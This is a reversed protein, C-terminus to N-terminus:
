QLVDEVDVSSIDDIPLRSLCDCNAHDATNRYVITFQFQMLFTSWRQLRAAMFSPLSKSLSFISTLPKHDTVLLFKSGYLYQYFKKIGFIISAAERDIQSWNKEAQTLSRSAFHIPRETGDPLIHSLVAGLGVSSAECDLKLQWKPNYHILVDTSVLARKIAEFSDQHSKTWCFRADKCKLQNLPACLTSFNPVFKSYYNAMGLFTALQSLDKPVPMDVICDVKAPKVRIGEADLIHGLYEVSKNYFSCKDKRGRLGYQTLRALVAELNM